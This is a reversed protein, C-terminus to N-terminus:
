FPLQEEEEGSHSGAGTISHNTAMPQPSNFSPAGAQKEYNRPSYGQAGSNSESANAQGSHAQGEGRDPKGFPSFKIMEAQIDLSVQSRGEKDMYIQPAQMEGIVIIASGKKLYPLMKEFRDGWITVRWWVTDDKGARRINTAVTFTTIKQGSATFRQEPDRGLHGAIEVIIM